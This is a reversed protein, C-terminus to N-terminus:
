HVSQHRFRHPKRTPHDDITLDDNSVEEVGVLVGEVALGQTHGHENWVMFQLSPYVLPPFVLKPERLTRPQPFCAPLNRATSHHIAEIGYM